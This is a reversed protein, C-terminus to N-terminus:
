NRGGATPDSMAVSLSTPNKKQMVGVAPSYISSVVRRRWTYFIVANVM